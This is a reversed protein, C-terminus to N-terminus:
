GVELMKIEASEKSFKLAFQPRQLGSKCSPTKGCMPRLGERAGSFSTHRQGIYREM